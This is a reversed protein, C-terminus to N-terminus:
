HARQSISGMLPEIGLQRLQGAIRASGTKQWKEYLRMIDRDNTFYAKECVENLVEVFRSFQAALQHFIDALTRWRTSKHPLASLSGYANGGMAIYYDVDVLQRNLADPFVGSVFLALDGLRQLNLNRAEETPAELAEAYHIALPRLEIGNQTHEFLHDSRSFVTLLRVLYQRTADDTKVKQHDVAQQIQEHFFVTLDSSAILTTM